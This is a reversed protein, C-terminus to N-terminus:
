VHVGRAETGVGTSEEEEEESNLQNIQDAFADFAEILATDSEGEANASSAKKRGFSPRRVRGSESMNDQTEALAALRLQKAFCRGSAFM